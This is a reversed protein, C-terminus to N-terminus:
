FEMGSRLRRSVTLPDGPRWTGPWIGAADNSASLLQLLQIAARAERM